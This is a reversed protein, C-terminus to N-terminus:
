RGGAGDGPQRIMAWIRLPHGPVAGAEAVAFGLREYFRVNDETQTELYCPRGEADAQALLPRLLKGGVGQRQRAPDVGLAGLYWHPARLLRAHVADNYNMADAFRRRAERRMALVARPLAFGTRLMRWLSPETNGPGFWVAVGAFTPTTYVQGFTLGYGVLSHWLRRLAEAREAEDPFVYAYDEDPLFARLLTEVARGKQTRTLLVPRESDDM